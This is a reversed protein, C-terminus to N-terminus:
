PPLIELLNVFDLKWGDATEVWNLDLRYSENQDIANFRKEFGVTLHSTARGLDSDVFLDHERSNMTISDSGSRYRMVSGILTRRDRTSLNLQDARLEFSDAFISGIANAKSLSELQSEKSRKAVLSRLEDLKRNIQRSDSNIWGSVIWLSIAVVAALALRINLPRQV